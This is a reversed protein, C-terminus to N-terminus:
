LIKGDENIKALRKGQVMGVDACWTSMNSTEM